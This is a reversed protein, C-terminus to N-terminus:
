ACYVVVLADKPFKDSWSSVDHPDVRSAGSIKLDSKRGDSVIRVDLIVLDPQDLKAKLQEPEMLPATDTAASAVPNIIMIVLVSALCKLTDLGRM